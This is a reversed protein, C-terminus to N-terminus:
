DIELDSGSIRHNSTVHSLDHVDESTRARALTHDLYVVIVIVYM